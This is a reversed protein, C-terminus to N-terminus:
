EEKPMKRGCMPCYLAPSEIGMDTLSPFYVFSVVSKGKCYGCGNVDTSKEKAINHAEMAENMKKAIEEEKESAARILGKPEIDSTGSLIAHDV